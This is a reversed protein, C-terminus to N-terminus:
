LLNLNVAVAYLFTRRWRSWEPKGTMPPYPREYKVNDIVGQRYPKPIMDLAREIASIRKEMVAVLATNEKARCEEIMRDMDRVAYLAQYFVAQPLYM